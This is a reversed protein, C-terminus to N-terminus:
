PLEVAGTVVNNAQAIHQQRDRHIPPENATTAQRAHIVFCHAEKDLALKAFEKPDIVDVRCTTTLAVAATYTRWQFSRKSWDINPNAMTLWPMGLIMRTNIDAALFTDQFYRVQGQQDEQQFEIYHMGYTKVAEGHIASLGINTNFIPLGMKQATVRNIINVEAGSDALASFSKTKGRANLVLTNKIFISDMKSLEKIRQTVAHVKAAWVRVDVIPEAKVAPPPNSKVDSESNSEFIRTLSAENSSIDMPASEDVFQTTITAGRLPVATPTM